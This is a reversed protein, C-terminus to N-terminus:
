PMFGDSRTTSLGGSESMLPMVTRTAAGAAGSLECGTVLGQLQLEHVGGGCLCGDGRTSGASGGPPCGGTSSRETQIKAPLQEGVMSSSFKIWWPLVPIASLTSALSLRAHAKLAM